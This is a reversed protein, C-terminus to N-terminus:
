AEVNTCEVMTENRPKESGSYDDKKMTRQEGVDHEGMPCSSKFSLYANDIEEQLRRLEVSTEQKIKEMTWDDEVRADVRAAVIKAVEGELGALKLENELDFREKERQNISNIKVLLSV